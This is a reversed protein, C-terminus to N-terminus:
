KSVFRGKVRQRLCAKQRLGPYLVRGGWRRNKKKNLYRSVKTKRMNNDYEVEKKNNLFKTDYEVEKKNNLVKTDYEVEKKKNLVKTDYEVEKKKNLITDYEVEKKKFLDVEFSLDDDDKFFDFIPFLDGMGPYLSDDLYINSLDEVSDDLINSSETSKMFEDIHMYFGKDSESSRIFEDIHMNFEEESESESSRIFEDIHMNFEEENESEIDIDIHLGEKETVQYKEIFDNINFGEEYFSDM